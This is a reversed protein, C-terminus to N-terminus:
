VKSFDGEDLFLISGADFIPGDCLEVIEYGSEHLFTRIERHQVHYKLSGSIFVKDNWVGCAGGFFGHKFGPLLVDSSSVYLAKLGKKSLVNYIGEDSTIFADNKLPLLSCRCYGQSVHVIEKEKSRDLIEKETIDNRHILYKSSAAANYRATEPYKMGVPSSGWVFNIKKEELIRFYEKPLNPAAILAPPAQFFFIDPHGSIAEYTIGSTALEILSGFRGLTEKAKEPLKKDIIIQM